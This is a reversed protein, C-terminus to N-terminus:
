QTILKNGFRREYRAAIALSAVFSCDTIITKLITIKSSVYGMTVQKITGSDIRDIITPEALFEDPRAWAKFNQRQKESLPLHGDKDTFPIPFIFQEKMDCEMFPVYKLNNIRSTTALVAMESKDLQGLTKSKNQDSWRRRAGRKNTANTPHSSSSPKQHNGNLRM